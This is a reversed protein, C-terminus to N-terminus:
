KSLEREEVYGDDDDSANEILGTCSLFRRWVEGNMEM